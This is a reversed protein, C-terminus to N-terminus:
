SGGHIEKILREVDEGWDAYHVPLVEGEMNGGLKFLCDRDPCFKMPMEDGRREDGTWQIWKEKNGVSEYLRWEGKLYIGALGHAVTIDKKKGRDPGDRPDTWDKITVKQFHLRSPVGVARCLAALLISREQCLNGGCRLIESAVRTNCMKDNNSDRVYEYLAKAKEVDTTCDKTLERAKERIAPHDSDIFSTPKLYDAVGKEKEM